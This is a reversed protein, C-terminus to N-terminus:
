WSEFSIKEKTISNKELLNKLGNLFEESGCIYYHTNFPQDVYKKIMEFDIRRTEFGELNTQERTIVYIIKLTKNKAALEDLRSKYAVDALTKNSYFLYLKKQYNERLLSSIMCFFPTIGIGGALFVADEGKNFLFKGFPGAISVEQGEKLELIARSFQGQIKIGFGLKDPEYPLFASYPKFNPKISSNLKILFFQGPLFNNVEGVKPKFIFTYIDATEKEKKELVYSKFEFGM